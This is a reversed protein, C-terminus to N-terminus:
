AAPVSVGIARKQPKETAPTGASIIPMPGISAIGRASFCVPVV